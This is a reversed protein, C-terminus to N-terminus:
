SRKKKFWSRNNTAQLDFHFIRRYIKKVFELPGYHYLISAVGIAYAAWLLLTVGPIWFHLHAFILYALEHYGIVILFLAPISVLPSVRLLPVAISLILLFLFYLEYIPKVRKIFSGDLLNGAINGHIEMGPIGDSSVAGKSEDRPPNQNATGFIVVKGGFTSSLELDSM